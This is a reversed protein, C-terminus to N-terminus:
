NTPLALPTEGWMCCRLRIKKKSKQSVFTIWLRFSFESNTWIAENEHLIPFKKGFFNDVGAKHIIGSAQSIKSGGSFQRRSAVPLSVFPQMCQKVPTKKRVFLATLHLFFDRFSLGDVVIGPTRQGTLSSLHPELLGDWQRFDIFLFMPIYTPILGRRNGQLSHRYYCGASEKQFTHRFTCGMSAAIVETQSVKGIGISNSHGWNWM